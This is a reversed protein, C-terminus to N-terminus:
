MTELPIDQVEDWWGIWGACVDPDPSIGGRSLPQYYPPLSELGLGALGAMGVGVSLQKVGDRRGPWPGGILAQPRNVIVISQDGASFLSLHCQMGPMTYTVSLVQSCPMDLWDGCVPSSERSVLNVSRSFGANRKFYNVRNKMVPGVPGWLCSQARKPAFEFFPVYIWFVRAKASRHVDGSVTAVLAIPRSLKRLGVFFGARM